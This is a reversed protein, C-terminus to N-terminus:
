TFNTRTEPHSVGNQRMRKVIMQSRYLNIRFKM